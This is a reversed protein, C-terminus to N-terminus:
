PSSPPLANLIENLQGSMTVQAAAIERLTRETALDSEADPSAATPRPDPASRSREVRHDREAQEEQRLQVGRLGAVIWGVPGLLGWWASARQGSAGHAIAVSIFLGVLVGVVCLFGDLNPSM